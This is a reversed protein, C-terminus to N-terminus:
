LFLSTGTLKAEDHNSGMYIYMYQVTSFMHEAIQFSTYGNRGFKGDKLTIKMIIIIIFVLMKAHRVDSILM